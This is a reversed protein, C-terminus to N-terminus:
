VIVLLPGEPSYTIKKGAKGKQLAHMDALLVPKPLVSLDSVEWFLTWATDETLAPEPRFKANQHKGRKDAMTWGVFVGHLTAHGSKYFQPTPSGTLSPYIFTKLGALAAGHKSFFHVANSGFAVKGERKCVALADALHIDPVPALLATVDQEAL